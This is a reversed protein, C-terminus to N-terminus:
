EERTRTKWIMFIFAFVSIISLIDFWLYKGSEEPKITITGDKAQSLNVRIVNNDGLQIDLKKGNEDRATYITYYLLPIEIYGSEETNKYELYIKSGNKEHKTIEIGDSTKYKDKVLDTENLKTGSLYYENYVNHIDYQIFTNNTIYKEQKSFDGLFMPVAIFAILGTILIIKYNGIFDKEKNIKSDVYRGIIISTVIVICLTAIELFRWSFQLTSCFSKIIEFREALVEWPFLSTAMIISVVSIVVLTKIFKNLSDNKNKYKFCYGLSIILGINCLLGLSLNMDDKMGEDYKKSVHYADSSDFINFLQAPIVKSDPFFGHHMIHILLYM